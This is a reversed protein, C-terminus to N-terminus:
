RLRIRSVVVTAAFYDNCKPSRRVGLLPCPVEVSHQLRVFINFTYVTGFHVSAELTDALEEPRLHANRMAVLDRLVRLATGNRVRLVDRCRVGVVNIMGRVMTCIVLHSERSASACTRGVSISITPCESPAANAVYQPLRHASGALASAVDVFVAGEEYRNMDECSGLRQRQVVPRHEYRDNCKRRRSNAVVGKDTVQFSIMPQLVKTDDGFAIWHRM